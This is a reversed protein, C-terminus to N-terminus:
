NLSLLSQLYLKCVKDVSYEIKVKERGKLGMLKRENRNLSILMLMKDALDDVDKVKCLFGTEKHDVIERCGPVNTAIIPKAMSSAELLVRSLGERYSPLVICTSKSIYPRVDEVEGLYEITNSLEWAKIEEYSISTRNESGAAGILQFTVDPFIKKVKKAAKVYEGIGKDWLLRAILAFIFKDPHDNNPRSESFHATDIGSGPILYAQNRDILRENLFLNQDSNNQFFIITASKMSILYMKKVLSTIWNKKIFVTGLGTITAITKIKLLRAAFSGYIVPKITFPMYVKPKVKFICFLINVFTIIDAFPNIGKRSIYLPHISDVIGILNKECGDFETIVEVRYGEAKLM